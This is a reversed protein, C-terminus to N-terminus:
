TKPLELCLFCNIIQLIAQKYKSEEVINIREKAMILYRKALNLAYNFGNNNLIINKLLKLQKLQEIHEFDNYNEIIHVVKKKTHLDSNNLLFIIPLTIRGEVTDNGFKYYDFIDDLLQYAIGFNLGCEALVNNELNATILVNPLQMAISFLNATKAIIIQLYKEETINFNYKESLQLIEGEVMLNATDAILSIIKNNNKSDIKSILKFAKSYLFDGSLIACKNSFEANITKKNRRMTANDLVDDHLLSAIHILQIVTALQINNNYNIKNNHKLGNLAHASLLLLLPRLQKGTNDIIHKKIFIFLDSSISPAVCDLIIHNMQQIPEAVLNKINNIQCDLDIFM